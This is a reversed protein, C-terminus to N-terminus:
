RPVVLRTHLDHCAHQDAKRIDAARERTAKADADLQPLKRCIVVKSRKRARNARLNRQTLLYLPAFVACQVPPHSAVRDAIGAQVAKLFRM